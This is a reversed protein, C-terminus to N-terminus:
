AWRSNARVALSLGRLLRSREFRRGLGIAPFPVMGAYCLVIYVAVVAVAILVGVAALMGLPSHVVKVLLVTVAPLEIGFDDFIRILAPLIAVMLFSGILPLFLIPWALYFANGVLTHQAPTRVDDSAELQKLANPLDGTAEGMQAAVIAEPSLTGRALTAAANLPVGQGLRDALDSLKWRLGSGQDAAMARVVAPLPM